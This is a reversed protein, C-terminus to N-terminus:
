TVCRVCEDPMLGPRRDSLARPLSGEVFILLQAHGSEPVVNLGGPLVV